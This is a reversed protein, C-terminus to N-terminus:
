LQLRAHDGSPSCAAPNISRIAPSIGPSYDDSLRRTGRCAQLGLYQSFGAYGSHVEEIGGCTSRGESL